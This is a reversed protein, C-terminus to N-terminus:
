LYQVDRVLKELKKMKVELVGNKYSACASKPDVKTPLKLENYWEFDAADVSVTLYNDTVRLDIADKTVGPLAALVVLTEGDEILDVLPEPDDIIEPENQWPQRSNFEYIRPKGDPGIKIAFGQVRNRRVPTKESSTESAKQITEDILYGLKELEEYIDNFWPSKKKRRRWWPNIL